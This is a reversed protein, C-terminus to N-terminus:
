GDIRLGLRERLQSIKYEKVYALARLIQRRVAKLDQEKEVIELALELADEFGREYGKM